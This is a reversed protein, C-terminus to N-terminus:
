ANGSGERTKIVLLKLLQDGENFWARELGPQVAMMDEARMSFSEDEVNLTGEGELVFFVIRWPNFHKEIGEGPKLDLRIIEHHDAQYMLWADQPIPLKHAIGTEVKTNYM